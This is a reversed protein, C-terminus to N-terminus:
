SAAEQAVLLNPPKKGMIEELLRSRFLREPAAPINVGGDIFPHISPIGPPTAEQNM